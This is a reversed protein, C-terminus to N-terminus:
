SSNYIKVIYVDCFLSWLFVTLAVAPTLTPLKSLSMNIEANM